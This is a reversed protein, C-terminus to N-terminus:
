RLSAVGSYGARHGALVDDDVARNDVIVATVDSRALVHYGTKPVTYPFQHFRRANDNFQGGSRNRSRERAEHHVRRHADFRGTRASPLRNGAQCHTRHIRRTRSLSGRHHGHEDWPVVDDADGYVHLLPVGAEALPKLNDVPNGDYAMAEAEDRFGYTEMVLQWDRPSGKGKGKGGPWSKFDCM